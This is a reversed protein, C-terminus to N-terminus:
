QSAQCPLTVSEKLMLAFSSFLALRSLLMGIALFIMISRTLFQELQSKESRRVPSADTKLRAVSDASGIASLWPPSGAALGLAFTRAFDAQVPQRRRATNLSGAVLLCEPAMFRSLKFNPMLRPQGRQRGSWRLGAWESQPASCGGYTYSRHSSRAVHAAVDSPSILDFIVRARLSGFGPPEDSRALLLSRRLALVAGWFIGAHPRDGGRAEM